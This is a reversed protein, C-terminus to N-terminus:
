NLAAFSQGRKRLEFEAQDVIDRISTVGYVNEIHFVTGGVMGGTNLNHNPIIQGSSNPVFVEPGTEGVVYAQGRQVPGGSQVGPLGALQRVGPTANEVLPGLASLHVVVRAISDAWRDWAHWIGTVLDRHAALTGFLSNLLDQAVGLAQTTPLIQETRWARYREEVGPIVENSLQLLLPLLGGAPADGEGSLQANALILAPTTEENLIRALSGETGLAAEAQMAEDRLLGLDDTLPKVVDSTGEVGSTVEELASKFAPGRENAIAELQDGYSVASEKGAIYADTVSGVAEIQALSEDSVLGMDRLLTTVAESRQSDTIIGKDNAENLKEIAIRATEAVSLEGLKFALEATSAAHVAVADSAAIQATRLENARVAANQMPDAIGGVESKAGGFANAVTYASESLLFNEQILEGTSTRLNGQTDVLFNAAQAARAMEDRYVLYSDATLATAESHEALVGVLNEEMHLLDNAVSIGSAMFEAASALPPLLAGGLTEALGEAEAKLRRMVNAFSDATREADGQADTTGDLILQYIAAAKSQADIAEGQQIFGMELAKAEIASQSAVVGYKRLTEVNGVLASQIDRVVDGTRLNNFSALDEALGIVEVSMDAATDRAFGLPVFTDQLTAAYGMLATKNRGISDALEGLAAASRESENKFVANFKSLTEEADSALKISAGLGTALAGLALPGAFATVASAAGSVSGRLGGLSKKAQDIGRGRWLSELIFRVKQDAV